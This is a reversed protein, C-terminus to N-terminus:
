SLYEAKTNVILGDLGAQIEAQGKWETRDEQIRYWVDRLSVECFDKLVLTQLRPLTKLYPIFRLWVAPREIDDEIPQFFVDFLDLSELSEPHLNLGSEFFDDTINLSRLTMSKFRKNRIHDYLAGYDAKRFSSQPSSIDDRGPMFCVNNMFLHWGDSKVVSITSGIRQVREYYGCDVAVQISLEFVSSLGTWFVDTAEINCPQFRKHLLQLDIKEVPYCSSQVASVFIQLTGSTDIITLATDIGFEM